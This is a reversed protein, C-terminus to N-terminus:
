DQKVSSLRFGPISQYVQGLGTLWRCHKLEMAGRTAPIPTHAPEGAGAGAWAM